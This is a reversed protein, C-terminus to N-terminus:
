VKDIPSNINTALIDRDPHTRIRIHGYNMNALFVLDDALTKVYEKDFDKVLLFVFEEDAHEISVTSPYDKVNLVTQIIHYPYNGRYYITFDMTETM